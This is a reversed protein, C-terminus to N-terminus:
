KSDQGVAPAFVAAIAFLVLVSQVQVQLVDVVAARFRLARLGVADALAKMLRDLISTTCVRSTASRLATSFGSSHADHERLREHRSTMWGAM